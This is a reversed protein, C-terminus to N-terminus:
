YIKSRPPEEAWRLGLNHVTTILIFILYFRPVIHDGPCDLDERKVVNPKFNLINIIYDTGRRRKKGKLRGDVVMLEIRM